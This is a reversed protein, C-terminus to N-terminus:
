EFRLDNTLVIPDYPVTIYGLPHTIRSALGATNSSIVNKHLAPNADYKEYNEILIEPARRKGL